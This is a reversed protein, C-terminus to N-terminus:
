QRRGFLFGILLGLSIGAAAMAGITQWPNDRVYRDTTAAAQRYRTKMMNMYTDTDPMEQKLKRLREEFKTRAAAFGEGSYNSTTRLLEEADSVLNRFNSSFNQKSSSFGRSNGSGASESSSPNSARM